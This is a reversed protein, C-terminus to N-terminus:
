LHNQIPELLDLLEKKVGSCVTVSNHTSNKLRVPDFGSVKINKVQVEKSLLHTFMDLAAKATAYGTMQYNAYCFNDDKMKNLDGLASTINVIHANKANLLLPYMTQILQIMSFFNEDYLAKMEEINIDSIKQGFGNAIEANNILVDLKGYLSKIYSYLLVVDKKQTLDTELLTTNELTQKNLEQFTQGKAAIIVDFGQKTLLSAFEVSLGNGAETVLAIRQNKM